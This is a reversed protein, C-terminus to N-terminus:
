AMKKKRVEVCKHLLGILGNSMAARPVTATPPNSFHGHKEGRRPQSRESKSIVADSIGSGCCKKM